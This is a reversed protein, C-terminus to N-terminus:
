VTRGVSHTTHVRVDHAFRLIEKENMIWEKLNSSLSSVPVFRM